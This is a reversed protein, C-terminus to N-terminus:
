NDYIVGVIKGDNIAFEYGLNNLVYLDELTANGNMILNIDM